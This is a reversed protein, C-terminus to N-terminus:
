QLLVNNDGEWTQNVDMDNRLNGLLSITNYGHGGCAERCEQVGKFSYWTCIAKMSSILAHVEGLRKNKPDFLSNRM